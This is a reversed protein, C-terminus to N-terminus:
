ESWGPFIVIHQELRLSFVVLGVLWCGMGKIHIFDFLKLSNCLFTKLPGGACFNKERTSPCFVPLVFYKSYVPYACLLYRFCVSLVDFILSLFCYSSNFVSHLCNAKELLGVLAGGVLQLSDETNRPQPCATGRQSLGFVYAFAKQPKTCCM